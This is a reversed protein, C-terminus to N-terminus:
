ANLYSWPSAESHLRVQTALFGESHTGLWLPWVLIFWQLVDVAVNLMGYEFICSCMVVAYVVM